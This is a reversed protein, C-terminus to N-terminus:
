RGWRVFLSAWAMGAGIGALLVRSGDPLRGEDAAEALAIPVSAASTNGYRAVNVVVREAPIHLRRAAAEIIRANAQHPVFLDVDDPGSASAASMAASCSTVLARTARRYVEQGDMSVYREGHPVHLASLAGGDGGLDAGLLGPGEGSELGPGASGLLVAGAGDGFLIATARDDPDILATFRDAGIVLVHEVSGAALMGIGVYLAYAFGACAANLDFAAGAAGLRDQVSAATAPCATDPTTTAVIVVDVDAPDIGSGHLADAGAAVALDATTQGPDAVRREIIGTRERIWADSTDLRAELDANRVVTRPLSRGLGLFRAGAATRLAVSRLPQAPAPAPASASM